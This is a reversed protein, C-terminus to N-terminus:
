PSGNSDIKIDGNKSKSHKLVAGTVSADYDKTVRKLFKANTEWVKPVRGTLQFLQLKAPMTRDEDEWFKGVGPLGVGHFSLNEEGNTQRLVILWESVCKSFLEPDKQDESKLKSQLATAYIQHLDPDEKKSLSLQCFKIAKDYEGHQLCYEASRALAGSGDVVNGLANISEVPESGSIDQASVAEPSNDSDAWAVGTAILSLVIGGISSILHNM